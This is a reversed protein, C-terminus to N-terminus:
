HGLGRLFVDHWQGRRYRQFEADDFQRCDTCGSGSTTSRKIYYGTAGSSAAWTLNIQNNTVVIAALGTPAVPFAPPTSACFHRLILRELPSGSM